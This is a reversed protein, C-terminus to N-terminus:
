EPWASALIRDGISKLRSPPLTEVDRREFSLQDEISELELLSRGDVGCGMSELMLDAVLDSFSEGVLALIIM